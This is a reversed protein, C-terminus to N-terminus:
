AANIATAALVALEPLEILSLSTLSFGSESEMLSLPEIKEARHDPDNENDIERYLQGSTTQM